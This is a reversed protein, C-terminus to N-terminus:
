VVADGVEERLRRLVRSKAQRVAAATVGLEAAVVAPAQDEFAVRWFALWTREEFEGRVMELARRYLATVQAEPEEPLDADPDPVAQILRQADSGGQGHPQNRARRLHDLLKHRTIGRLWARFADTARDRRFQALGTAVGKFVEQTVDEADAGRVGWQQCWYHVLPTYLDLLRQWAAPENTRVRDLLTLSTAPGPM